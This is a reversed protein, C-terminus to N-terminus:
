RSSVQAGAVISAAAQLLDVGRYDPEPVSALLARERRGVWATRLGARSAGLVDWWHAACLVVEDPAAGTREVGRAYVRPDPKFAEVADSGAVLEIRDDLGAAALSQEAAAAASNTLVGVRLGAGLLADLAAAAEPFPPMTMARELAEDIAAGDLADLEVRRELAARLYAPLPRYVGVLTGAMAQWVADDLAEDGLQPPAGFPEAMVGPDLLTGNLDFLVWTPTV